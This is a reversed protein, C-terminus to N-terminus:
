ESVELSDVHVWWAPALASPVPGHFYSGHPGDEGTHWFVAEIEARAGHWDGRLSSDRFASLYFGDVYEATIPKHRMIRAVGAKTIPYSSVSHDGSFTITAGVRALHKLRAQGASGPVGKAYAEATAKNLRRQYAPPLNGGARWRQGAKAATDYTRRAETGKAPLRGGTDQRGALAHTLRRGAERNAQRERAEYAKLAREHARREIPTPFRPTMPRPMAAKFGFIAGANRNVAGPEIAMRTAIAMELDHPLGEGDSSDYRGGTDVNHAIALLDLRTSLRPSQRPAM